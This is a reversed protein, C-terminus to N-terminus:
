PKLNVKVINVLISGNPYHNFVNSKFRVVKGRRIEESTVNSFNIRQYLERLRTDEYFPCLVKGDFIEGDYVYKGVCQYKAGNYSGLSADRFTYSGDTKIKFEAIYPPYQSKIVYVGAIEKEDIAQSSTPLSLAVLSLIAWFYRTSFIM